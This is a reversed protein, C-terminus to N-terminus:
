ERNGAVVHIDTATILSILTFLHKASTGKVANWNIWESLYERSIRYEDSTLMKDAVADLNTMLPTEWLNVTGGKGFKPRDAVQAPLLKRALDALAIKDLRGRNKPSIDIKRKDPLRNAAQLVSSYLYPVRAEVSHAMMTKDVRLLQAFQMQYAREFSLMTDLKTGLARKEFVSLFEGERAALAKAVPARLYAVAGPQARRRRYHEYMSRTSANDEQAARHWPYGAFIEDSGEGMLIVKFGNDRIVKSLGFTPFVNPNALPEEVHHLISRLTQEFDGAPLRIVRHEIGCHKAVIRAYEVEDDDRDSFTTTFAVLDGRQRAALAAVISSDLGGSLAIAVPVDAVLHDSVSQDLVKRLGFENWWRKTEATDQAWFRRHVSGGSFSIVEGPAVQSLDAFFSNQSLPFGWLTIEQLVDPNIARPGLRLLPKTESAFSVTDGQERVYLPKIGFRDRALSLTKTKKDYIAIAFMGHLKEFCADGWQEFARAVVETDGSTSFSHGLKQLAARVERYNYVEGNYALVTCDTLFPQNSAESLDIIALRAHGFILERDIRFASFDDPGRHKITRLSSLFAEDSPLNRGVIGFIGCM